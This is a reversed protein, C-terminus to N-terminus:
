RDKLAGILSPGGRTFLQVGVKFYDAPDGLADVLDLAEEPTPLDLAVILSKM